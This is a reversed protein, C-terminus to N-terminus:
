FFSYFGQRSPIYTFFAFEDHMERKNGKGDSSQSNQGHHHAGIKGLGFRVASIVMHLGLSVALPITGLPVSFLVGSPVTVTTMRTAHSISVGTECLAPFIEVILHVSQKTVVIVIAAVVTTTVITPMITTLSVISFSAVKVLAVVDSAMAIADDNFMFTAVDVAELIGM